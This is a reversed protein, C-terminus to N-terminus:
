VDNKIEKLKMEAYAIVTVPDVAGFTGERERRRANVIYNELMKKPPTFRSLVGSALEDIYRIEAESNWTREGNAMKIYYSVKM